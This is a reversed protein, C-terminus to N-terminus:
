RRALLHTHLRKEAGPLSSISLTILGTVTVPTSLPKSWSKFRTRSSTWSIKWVPRDETKGNVEFGGARVMHEEKADPCFGFLRRATETQDDQATGCDGEETGYIAMLFNGVGEHGLLLGRKKM